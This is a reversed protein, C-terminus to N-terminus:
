SYNLFELSQIPNKGIAKNLGGSSTLVWMTNTHDRYIFQVDNDGLSEKKGPIKGYRIFHSGFFNQSEPDFLLLGDTTGIWISGDADLAMHRVKNCADTPYFKLRNKPNYFKIKPGTEDVLNIGGGFTGVWIRGRKDELLTYISNSSIAFLDKSDTVFHRVTYRDRKNDVPEAKFLGDGKTGLWINGKRDEIITYVAVAPLTAHIFLENINIPKENHSVYIKRAKTAVWLRDKSDYFIGRVENEAKLFTNNVLKTHTFDNPHFVIKELGGEDTSLWSIGAAADYFEASVMNSLRHNSAGPENYFPKLTVSASDFYGFGCGKMNVWVIGRNDEYVHYEEADHLYNSYNPQTFHQFLKTKPNFLIVGNEKPEIWFLGNHDEYISLLEESGAMRATSLELSRLSVTVLEGNAMSLYLNSNDDSLYLANINGNSINLSTLKGTSKNLCLLKGNGTGFWLNTSNEAICTVFANKLQSLIALKKCSGNMEAQLCTLGQRSGIWLRSSSDQYFCSISDSPLRHAVDANRSFWTSVPKESTAASLLFFGQNKTTLAIEDKRLIIIKDISVQSKEKVQLGKSISLFKGTTKDFRYVQRDYANLWLFGAHDEVIFDIRNNKLVSYDGPHSKYTVFNHGDFRNIGTWTGMWMFGNRDKTICTIKNDSLGDKTSFHEITCKPQASVSIPKLSCYFLFLGIALYRM